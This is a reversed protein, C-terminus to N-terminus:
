NLHTYYITLIFEEIYQTLVTSVITMAQCGFTQSDFIQGEHLLAATAAPHPLSDLGVVVIGLGNPESSWANSCKQMEHVGILM